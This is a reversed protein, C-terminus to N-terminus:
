DHVLCYSLPEFLNAADLWFRVEGGAVIAWIREDHAAMARDTASPEAHGTPHSHYYGVIQAGGARAARHAAILVSPDIEFHREPEAAVNRAPLAREVRWSEELRAGLLVGCCEEPLAEVADALITELVASTVALVMGMKM